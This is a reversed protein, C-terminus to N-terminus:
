KGRYIYEGICSNHTWDYEFKSPIKSIKLNAKKPSSTKFCDFKRLKREMEASDPYKQNDWTHRFHSICDVYYQVYIWWGSLFLSLNYVNIFLLYESFCTKLFNNKNIYIWAVVTWRPHAQDPKDASIWWSTM